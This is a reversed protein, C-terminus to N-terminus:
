PRAEEGDYKALVARAVGAIKKRLAPPSVVEVQDGYGLIWWAIEGLGDVKVRFELAGDDNFQTQQNRHWRVEAVNGAVKRTFRLHVPYVKGEPIMSWADGFYQDLDVDHPQTFAKGTVTLKRMRALKYTRPGKEAPCYAILYWARSIFVLRLPHVTLCLLKSEQFSLYEMRCIHRATVAAVLEDFLSDLGEHRAAPAPRVHLREIMPGVHRCVAEPLASEIKMGARRAEGLLPISGTERMRGTAVLLALAESFTLNVPPLFFHGNIRYGRTEEDFYYPIHAMELMNLDRFVTRRSVGLEEALDDATYSRRSQLITVLRLLRYVRSVGGM